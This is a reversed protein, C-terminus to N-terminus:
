RCRLQCYVVSRLQCCVTRCLVLVVCVKRNTLFEYQGWLIKTACNSHKLWSKGAVTTQRTVLKEVAVGVEGMIETGDEM